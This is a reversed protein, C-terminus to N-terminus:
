GAGPVALFDGALHRVVEGLGHEAAIARQRETGNHGALRDAWALERGAGARETAPAVTEILHRIRDRAPQPEGTDLDILNGALGHRLARWRNESIRTTDHVPLAEGADHREVLWAVLGLVLATVAGTAEVTTQQDAVRVEITPHLPHLRAEWWLQTGDPIAGSVAGWEILSALREFSPVEPPVGQRPLLEALKPRVSALGTDEGNVFPGNGALVAIDPLYSRLANFVALTRDAGAVGVHIHLGYVQEFRVIPGYEALIPEYRVNDVLPGTPVCCPHLAAGALAAFGDLGEAMARRGAALTAVAEGVTACVPTVQEIQSAPMETRVRRDSFGLMEVARPGEPLPTFGDPDLLMLEEEVGLTLDRGADFLARWGAADM